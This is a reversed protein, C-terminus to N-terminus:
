CGKSMANMAESLDIGWSTNIEGQVAALDNIKYTRESQTNKKEVSIKFCITGTEM